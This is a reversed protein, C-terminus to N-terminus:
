HERIGKFPAEHLSPRCTNSSRPVRNPMFELLGLLSRTAHPMAHLVSSPAPPCPLRWWSLSRCQVACVSSGGAHRTVLPVCTSWEGHAMGNRSSVYMQVLASVGALATRSSARAELEVAVAPSRAPLRELTSAM